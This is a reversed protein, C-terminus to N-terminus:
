WHGARDPVDEVLSIHGGIQGSLGWRCTPTFAVALWTNSWSIADSVALAKLMLRWSTLTVLM